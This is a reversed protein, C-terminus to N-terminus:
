SYQLRFLLFFKNPCQSYLSQKSLFPISPITSCFLPPVPLRIWLRLVFFIIPIFLSPKVYRSPDAEKPFVRIFRELLVKNEPVCLLYNSLWKTSYSRHGYTESKEPCDRIKPSHVSSFILLGSNRSFRIIYDLKKLSM